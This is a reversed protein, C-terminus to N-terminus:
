KKLRLFPDNSIVFPLGSVPSDIGM